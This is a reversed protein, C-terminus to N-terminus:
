FPTDDDDSGGNRSWVEVDDIIILNVNGPPNFRRPPVRGYDVEARSSTKTKPEIVFVICNHSRYSELGYWDDAFHKQEYDYQWKVWSGGFVRAGKEHINQVISGLQESMRIKSLQAALTQGGNLEVYSLVQKEFDLLSSHLEVDNKDLNVKWKITENNEDPASVADLLRKLSKGDLLALDLNHTSRAAVDPAGKGTVHELPVRLEDLIIWKM